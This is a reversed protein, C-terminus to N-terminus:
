RTSMKELEERKMDVFQHLTESFIETERRV